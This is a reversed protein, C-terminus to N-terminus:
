RRFLIFPDAAVQRLRAPRQWSVIVAVGIAWVAAVVLAGTTTVLPRLFALCATAAVTVLGIVRAFRWVEISGVARTGILYVALGGSVLWAAAPPPHETLALNVGAAVVLLAFAPSLHGGAYLGYAMAPNGGSARLVYENIEVASDFYIWWLAAALVLGAILGLWYTTGPAHVDLAASGVSVVIEGLLIIMFLGFREALHAADVALSPDSPPAFMARRAATRREAMPLRQEGRAAGRTTRGSKNADLLLFGAEQLLTAAWLVYRWPSPVMASAVFVVTSVAYGVTVRRRAFRSAETQFLFALALVLRAGALAFAFGTIHGEAAGHVEVAAIACPVTGALLFMRKSAHDEGGRNYLVVYGIWTWWLTAFLGLAVLIGHWDPEVVIVHVSQGVAFVFILDFYLEAWSVRKGRGGGDNNEPVSNEPVSDETVGDV